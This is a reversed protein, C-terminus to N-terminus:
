GITKQLESELDIQEFGNCDVPFELSIYFERETDTNYFIADKNYNYGYEEFEQLASDILAITNRTFQEKAKTDLHTAITLTVASLVMVLSLVILMEVLTFGSKREIKEM